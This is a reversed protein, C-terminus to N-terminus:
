CHASEFDLGVLVPWGSVARVVRSPCFGRRQEDSSDLLLIWAQVDVVDAAAGHLVAAAFADDIKRHSVLGSMKLFRLGRQVRESKLPLAAAIRPRLIARHTHGPQDREARGELDM